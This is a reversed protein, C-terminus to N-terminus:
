LCLESVEVLPPKLAPNGRHSPVTFATQAFSVATAASRLRSPATAAFPRCGLFRPALWQEVAYPTPHVNPRATELKKTVFCRWGALCSLQQPMTKLFNDLSAPMECQTEAWPRACLRVVDFTKALETQVRVCALPRQESHHWFAFAFFTRNQLWHEHCRKRRMLGESRQQYSLCEAAM